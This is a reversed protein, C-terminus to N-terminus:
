AVLYRAIEKIISRLQSENLRIVGDKFENLNQRQIEYLARSIIFNICESLYADKWLKNLNYVKSDLGLACLHGGVNIYAIIQHEGYPKPLRKINRFWQTMLKGNQDILNYEKKNNMVFRYGFLPKTTLIRFGKPSSKKKDKPIIGGKDTNNKWIFLMSTNIDYDTIIIIRKKGVFECNFHAVGLSLGLRYIYERGRRLYNCDDINQTEAIIRKFWYFIPPSGYDASIHLNKTYLDLLKEYASETFEIM